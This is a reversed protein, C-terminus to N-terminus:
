SRDYDRDVIDLAESKGKLIAKLAKKQDADSLDDEEEFTKNTYV